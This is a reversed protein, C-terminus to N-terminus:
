KEKRTILREGNRAAMVSDSSVALFELTTKYNNRARGVKTVESGGQATSGLM